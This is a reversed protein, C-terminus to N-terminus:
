INKEIEAQTKRLYLLQLAGDLRGKGELFARYSLKGYQELCPTREVIEVKLDPLRKKLVDATPTVICAVKAAAEHFEELSLLEEEGQFHADGQRVEGRLCYMGGIRADIVALFAGEFGSDPVFGRLTSIGVLPLKGGFALGKATAVAVRCGTYSGPGIGVGIFGLAQVSSILEMITPLLLKSNTFAAPFERKGIAVGDEFLGVVGTDTATDIFLSKM